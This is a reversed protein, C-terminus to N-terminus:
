ESTPDFAAVGHDAPDRHPTIHKFEQTAVSYLFIDSDSTTNPKVLAIWKQDNSTSASQYGKEEKYFLTREYTKPMTGISISSDAMASM